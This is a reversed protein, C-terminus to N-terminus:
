GSAPAVETVLSFTAGVDDLQFHPQLHLNCSFTGPMGPVERVEVRGAVLPYRARLDPDDSQGGNVYARLWDGLRREIEDATLASGLMDRAQAKLYHAFRSVCLVSNVQTSLRASADAAAAAAGQHREPRRLSRVVGFLLESGHVPASVPMLGADVLQREQSDTLVIEVPLRPWVGPPDTRFWEVPLDTVLGGGERDPDSGRVDAPWGYEAFARAVVAAFAFAANAWCRHDATPTAEDYRFPIPHRDEDRWPPRILVRPLAVALFETDRRATLAMWRAHQRDTFVSGLEPLRQLEQFSGLGLLAPSAGFIMPTFAAAAIGRLQELITVDDASAGPTVGHTVEHDVVMLGYPEGGSRGFEEEYIKRFLESQDFETARTVDRATENWSINLARVRVDRWRGQHARDTLWHIARWRAELRQFRPHHLIADIQDSLMRDIAAIDADIAVRLHTPPIDGFWDRMAQAGSHRTFVDVAKRLDTGTTGALLGSLVASRLNATPDAADM